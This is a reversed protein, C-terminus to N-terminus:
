GKLLEALKLATNWNRGTTPSGVLRDILAPTLRSRAIGQPFHAVLAEGCRAVVEGATARAQLAELAGEVAPRRSVLVLLRAPSRAAAETLPNAALTADWQAASRVVVPVELGFRSAILAELRAELGAAKGPVVLNGSALLTVVQGLGESRCAERLPGMPLTRGGVNVARLLALVKAM